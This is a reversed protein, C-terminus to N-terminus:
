LRIVQAPGENRQLLVARQHRDDLHALGAPQDGPDDRAEPPLRQLLELRVLLSQQPQESAPPVLRGLRALRDRADRDGVLGAAVAEPQRAPQPGSADLGVHDVGRADGDGALVAPGLGVPEVGLQELAGEEAPQPALRAV